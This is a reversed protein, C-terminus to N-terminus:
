ASWASTMTSTSYIHSGIVGQCFEILSSMQVLLTREGQLDEAVMSILDFSSAMELNSYLLATSLRSLDTLLHTKLKVLSIMTVDKKMM